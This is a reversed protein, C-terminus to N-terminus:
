WPFGTCSMNVQFIRSTTSAQAAYSRLRTAAGSLLKGYFAAAKQPTAALKRMCDEESLSTRVGSPNTSKIRTSSAQQAPRLSNDWKM